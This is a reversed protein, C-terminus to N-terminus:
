QSNASTAVIQASRQLFSSLIQLELLFQVAEQLVHRERKKLYRAMPQGKKKLSFSPWHRAEAKTGAKRRVCLDALCKSSDSLNALYNFFIQLSKGQKIVLKISPNHVGPRAPRLLLM